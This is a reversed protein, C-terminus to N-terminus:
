GRVTRRAGALVFAATGIIALAVMRALLTPGDTTAFQDCDERREGATICAAHTMSVGNPFHVIRPPLIFALALALVAAAILVLRQTHTLM